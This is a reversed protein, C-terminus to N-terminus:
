LYRKLIELFNTTNFPKTIYDNCGAELGAKEDREMAFATLAIIPIDAFTEMERLKRTVELGDMRPIQIDMLIIDPKSETAVELAEIGDHAEVIECNVPELILKFLKLNSPNDEVIMIKKIKEDM